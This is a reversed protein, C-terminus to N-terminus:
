PEASGGGMGGAIQRSTGTSHGPHFAKPALEMHSSRTRTYSYRCRMVVTQGKWTARLVARDKRDPAANKSELAPLLSAANPSAALTKPLLGVLVVPVCAARQATLCVYEQSTSPQRTHSSQSSAAPQQRLALVVNGASMHLCADLFVQLITSPAGWTM